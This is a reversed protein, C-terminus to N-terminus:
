SELAERKMELALWLEENADRKAALEALEASLRTFRAANSAYLKPDSLEKQLAAIQKNQADIQDPLAKLAHHDSFSLKAVAERPSRAPASKKEDSRAQPKAAPKAVGQGRQAVMDSYGGAYVSFRGEGESMVIMTAVRDLFDRDHSVVLATGPYDGVVEELLDLTELDLDNTPEDLVLFNSPVAFLRALLLRAREGGSLVKVPTRAQAPAFLFDQMYSIVHRPKGGVFVTDSGGGTLADALNDEPHLAARNQDLKAMELGTGLKVNGADPQLEGTLLKILTTKGAGNPGVIGIRDGRHIRLNFDHIVQKDGFSKAVGKADIVKTGSTGGELAEMKVTGMSKLEERRGKRLSNLRALRGQNRKRRASRGHALWDLENAIKRDRKHREIEEQELVTDRWNEFAGFGQDLRKTQGRDLWVVARSLNELFRRDHSILVLAGRMSKLESELWEIAPLDLHNTPEDLLLIDPKPALVRALAARRAEGGSLNSPVEQGTLGLHGLLYYARNPDDGPQLGAEVYDHTTAYGSLNPEQPLYRITAGPQAFHEGSDAEIMGAAIKLLTSKGSGNRGVLCLREGEGVSLEAGDLLVTNGFRIHIDKLFLLPAM